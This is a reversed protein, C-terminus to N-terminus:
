EYFKSVSNGLWLGLVGFGIAYLATTGMNKNKKMGYFVGGIVGLTGVVNGFKSVQM